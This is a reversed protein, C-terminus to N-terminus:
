KILIINKDDDKEYAFRDRLQFVKLIHEIGDRTRFKGTYKQKRFADNMVVIRVDYYLELKHIMGGVPEDDFCILGEKWLYPTLSLVPKKSWLHNKGLLRTNPELLMQQTQDASCVRLSGSFLSVEFLPSQAYAQVNFETGLVEINGRPTQVIFPKQTNEKVQFYAEGDLVVERSKRAFANPFTFTSGANLWLNTGDALSVEVRQGPPVHITQMGTDGAERRLNLIYVCCLALLAVAVASTIKYLRLGFVNRPSGPAELTPSSTTHCTQIGRWATLTHLKYFAALEEKNGDNAKVWDLVRIKEEPTMAEGAVYKKILLIDRTTQESEM